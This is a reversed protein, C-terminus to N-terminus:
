ESNTTRLEDNAQLWYYMLVGGAVAVNLSEARGPLPLRLWDTLHLRLDQSLGRAENGLALATNGRLIQSRWPIKGRYGDAGVLRYGRRLLTEFLTEPKSVRALLLSFVSGMSGRVTKPDFPDVCPEILIIGAAAVADATRILTGLNGPDQLRDLVLLLSPDPAAELMAKLTTEFLSFTAIIGQPSERESLASMVQLNVAYANGGAQTLKKLLAPATNGAFAERCYFIELPTHGGELAMGLLQLGEVAFRNQARRHKRQKLKRLAVIKPNKTSTIM